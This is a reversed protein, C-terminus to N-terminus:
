LEEEPLTSEEGASPPSLLPKVSIPTTKAPVAQAALPGVSPKVEESNNRGMYPVYNLCFGKRPEEATEQESDCSRLVYYKWPDGRKGKGVVLLRQWSL